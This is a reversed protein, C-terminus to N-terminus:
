EDNDGGLDFNKFLKKSLFFSIFIAFFWTGFVGLWIWLPLHLFKLDFDAIGFGACLWFIILGVLALATFFAERKILSFKEADSFIKM